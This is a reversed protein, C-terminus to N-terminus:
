SEERYQNLDEVSRLDLNKARKRDLFTLNLESRSVIGGNVTSRHSESAWLINQTFFTLFQFIIQSHVTGSATAASLIGKLQTSAELWLFWSLVSFMKMLFVSLAEEQKLV